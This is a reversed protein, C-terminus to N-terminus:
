NNLIQDMFIVHSFDRKYWTRSSTISHCQVLANQELHNLATEIWDNCAILPMEPIYDLIENAYFSIM